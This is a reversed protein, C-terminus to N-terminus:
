RSEINEIYSIENENTNTPIGRVKPRIFREFKTEYPRKHM